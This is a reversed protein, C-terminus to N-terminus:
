LWTYPSMVGSYRQFRSHHVQLRLPQGLFAAESHPTQLTFRFIQVPTAPAFDNIFYSLRCSHPPSFVQLLRQGGRYAYVARAALLAVGAESM